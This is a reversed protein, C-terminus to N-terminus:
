FHLLNSKIKVLRRMSVFNPDSKRGTVMYTTTLGEDPLANQFNQLMNTQFMKVIRENKICHKRDDKQGPYNSLIHKVM